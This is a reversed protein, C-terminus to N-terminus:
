HSRQSRGRNAVGQEPDALGFTAGLWGAHGFSQTSCLDGFYHDRLNLMFGLGYSCERELVVDHNRPRAESCFARLLQQSPLVDDDSGNLRRLLRGYLPCPLTRQQLRLIRLESRHLNSTHTRHAIPFARQRRMDCNIGIRHRVAEYEDAANLIRL